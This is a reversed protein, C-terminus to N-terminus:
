ECCFYVGDSYFYAESGQPFEAQYIVNEPCAREGALLRDAVAYCRDKDEDTAWEPFHVGYKWMMGYQYDQELVGRITDPFRRNEVRNLVVSGALMQMHESLGGAEQCIACALCYRDDESIYPATSEPETTTEPMPEFILEIADTGTRTAAPATTKVTPDTNADVVIVGSLATIIAILLICLAARDQEVMRKIAEKVNM